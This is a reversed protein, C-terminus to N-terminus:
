FHHFEKQIIIKVGLLIVTTRLNGVPSFFPPWTSKWPKKWKTSRKKLINPHDNVMWFNTPDENGIDQGPFCFESPSNVSIRFYSLIRTFKGYFNSSIPHNVQVEPVVTSEDHCSWKPGVGLKRGIQGSVGILGNDERHQAWLLQFSGLLSRKKQFDFNLSALM